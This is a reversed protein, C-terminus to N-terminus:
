YGKVSWSVDGSVRTGSTSFLLIKFSTPNPVDTFDYMAIVPSTGKPTVEISVVDVFPINFNVTTGGVDTASCTANGASTDHM